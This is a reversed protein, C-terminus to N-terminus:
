ARRWEAKCKCKVVGDIQEFLDTPPEILKYWKVHDAHKIKWARLGIPPRTKKRKM